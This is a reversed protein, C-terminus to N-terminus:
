KSVSRFGQYIEVAHNLGIMDNSARCILKTSTDFTINKDAKFHKETSFEKMKQHRKAVDKTVLKHIEVLKNFHCNKHLYRMVAFRMSTAPSRQLDSKPLM